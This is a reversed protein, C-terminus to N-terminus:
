IERRRSARFAGALMCVAAGLAAAAMDRQADWIDGQTGLWADGLEPGMFRAFWSEMIEYMASLALILEVPFYFEWFGRAPHVRQYIERAPYALLSGFAFHALRDYHNRTQEFAEQAWRGLPVEAYTYHAGVAHISLYLTILGYSLDSLPYARRTAALLALFAVVLVNELLWERRDAPYMGTLVWFSVYWLLLAQQLRNARVPAAATTM